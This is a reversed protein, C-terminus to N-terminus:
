LAPAALTVPTVPLLLALGLLARPAARRCGGSALQTVPIGIVGFMATVGLRALARAALFYGDSPQGSVDM